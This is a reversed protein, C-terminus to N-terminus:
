KKEVKNACTGLVNVNKPTYEDKIGLEKKVWDYGEKDIKEILEPGGTKVIKGKILIHVYDPKIYDLLRQYHTILLCGFNENVMASVNEGVIKLADVDLGSDIEDLIAFNPKLMKMQLIENKKKEGGSFGENLYRHPVDSAMKLDKISADYEKIFKYLPMNEKHKLAARIFDSNTVGPIEAPYQMAIFLGKRAREDVELNTINEGDLFIDGETITYRPNGMIASSLTTKGAGNPGMIAHVEGTNIKLDIGKLIELDEVKAHLNKIELTKM